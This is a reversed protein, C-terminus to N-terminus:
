VAEAQCRTVWQEFTEDSDTPGAIGPLLTPNHQYDHNWVQYDRYNSGRGTRMGQHIITIRSGLPVDKLKKFLVTRIPVLLDMPPKGDKGPLELLAHEPHEPQDDAWDPFGKFIATLPVTHQYDWRFHSDGHVARGM